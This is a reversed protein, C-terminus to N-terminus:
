ATEFSSEEDRLEAERALVSDRAEAAAVRARMEPMFFFEREGFAPELENLWAAEESYKAFFPRQVWEPNRGQIVRLVFVKEGRVETVGQVEIKGPAASMSPGRATRSLGSIHMIAARYIEWARALPVRFYHSAGTNREVFMYYPIIGLKTQTNWMERWVGAVDNIHRVLPSQSRIVAGTGRIRAIAERVAPTELERFHNFHAMIALQFGSSVIREFLRMLDDADNDTTYRYPWYSLSKTGIRITQLGINDAKLIPDLYRELARTSMIMPDGGTVLLDTVEPHHELYRVLQESDPASFRVESDTLFQPWRFCFTCYAHCTQGAQPFFLVTERYKHQVGELRETGLLPVNLSVQGAPHPNLDIRIGAAFARLEEQPAERRLMDAIKDFNHPRLMGRQPVTLQYIPDDPIRNWDILQEAVYNNVRFPFVQSVVRVAFREEEGLAQMQPLDDMTRLSFARFKPTSTSQSM